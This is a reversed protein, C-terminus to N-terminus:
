DAKERKVLTKTELVIHYLMDLAFIGLGIPVLVEPIFMPTRMITPAHSPTVLDMVALKGSQWTLLVVYALGLIETALLLSRRLGIAFYNVLIDVRIHMGQRLTYAAGFFSIAVLLYGGLEDAIMTPKLLVYRGFVDVAILAILGLVGLEAVGRGFFTLGNVLHRFCIM